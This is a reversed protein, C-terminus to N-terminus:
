AEQVILGLMRGEREKHAMVSRRHSYWLPNELTCLGHQVQALRTDLDPDGQGDNHCIAALEGDDKLYATAASVRSSSDVLNVIGSARLSTLAAGAIDISTGGFRSVGATGPFRHNFTEALDAEVQYCDSCISPGLTALIHAPDAGKDVMLAVTSEIIGAMLGKRGCHAAGIVGAQPDALFVPLCDAAFIGLFQDRRRTVQADAEPSKRDLSVPDTKDADYVRSSHIQSVLRIPLGLESVLARRNAAVAEKSDGVKYSLNLSAYDGQSVGGLRTTYVVKIGPGLEVPITVPIPVDNIDHRPSPSNGVVRHNNNWDEILNQGTKRDQDGM